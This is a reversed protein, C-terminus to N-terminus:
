LAPASAHVVKGSDLSSPTQSIRLCEIMVTKSEICDIRHELWQLVLALENVYPIKRPLIGCVSCDCYQM